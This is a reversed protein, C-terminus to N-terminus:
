PQTGTELVARAVCRCQIDEGPHGTVAPPSNWSFRIGNNAVHTPRVREDESTSWIYESVGVETQRARNLSGILKGTQDRTLRRLNYGASQYNRNLIRALERQNFPEVKDLAVIDRVVQEHFRRPITKILDVNGAVVRDLDIPTDALLDLRVGFYRRMAREFRGKHWDVTAALRARAVPTLTDDALERQAEAVAALLDRAMPESRGLVARYRAVMPDLVDTRLAREYDREDSRRPGIRPGTPM